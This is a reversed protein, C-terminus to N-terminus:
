IKSYIKKYKTLLKEGEVLFYMTKADEVHKLYGRM